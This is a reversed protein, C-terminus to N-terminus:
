LLNNKLNRLTNINIIDSFTTKKGNRNLWIGRMGIERCPLIDTDLNDGVYYCDKPYENVKNCAIEFLKTSPKAIGFEGATVIIEFYNKIGIKELKLSQQKLDGNSIIGLRYGTLENLCSIVDNFPKWNEQYKNSYIGFRKIAEEDSINVGSFSFIEKIRQLRQERFILEGKLYMQFYKDSVQCWSKYFSEEESLIEHKYENYFAKVGLYEAYKHDLLTDDIDFFIM